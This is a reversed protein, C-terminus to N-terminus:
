LEFSALKVPEVSKTSLIRTDSNAPSPTLSIEFLDLETLERIGDERKRESTVLYGFSLSVAGSKVSRWIERARESEELDLRGEVYLGDSTEKLSSPDVTGVIDEPSASHNWHLPLQKGSMQWMSITEAFAGRTIQDKERDVGWTAALATFQGLDTTTTAKAVLTKLETM